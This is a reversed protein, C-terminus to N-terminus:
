SMKRCRLTSGAKITVMSGGVESAFRIIFTGTNPGNVLIGTMRAYNNGTRSATTAAGSNYAQFERVQATTLSTFARWDGAIATPFAPGNVGLRIGTTTAATTYILFAEFIYIKNALANLSLGTVDTFSATSNGVDSTLKVIKENEDFEESRNQMETWTGAFATGVPLCAFNMFIVVFCCILILKGM